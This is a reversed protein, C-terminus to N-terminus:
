SHDTKIEFQSLYPSDFIDFLVENTCNCEFSKLTGYKLILVTM